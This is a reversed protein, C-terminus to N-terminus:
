ETFGDLLIVGFPPGGGAADRAAATYVRGNELTVTLPGIAPATSGAPTVTVDYDGGAVPVYGTEQEFDVESFAPEVASIDAGPETLYIDVRGASPAEHVIRLKANTVVSRNDDVLVQAGISALLGSAYVSYQTGAELELNEDIAIVGPNGAATVKVNYEGPAVELYDSVAEFPVDTLVPNEFNDDVVVDVNPADPSAHVVRFQTPTAEDLIEFSGQGDAVVLSIPSEGVGTNDVAAILLDAGGPLEIEGSDFVTADATAAADGSDADGEADAQGDDSMDADAGDDADAADGM